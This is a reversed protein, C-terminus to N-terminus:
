LRPVKHLKWREYFDGVVATVLDREIELVKGLKVEAGGEVVVVDLPGERGRFWTKKWEKGEKVSFAKETNIRIKAETNARVQVGTMHSRKGIRYWVLVDVIVPQASSSAFRTYVVTSCPQLSQQDMKDLLNVTGALINNINFRSAVFTVGGDSMLSLYEMVLKATVADATTPPPPLSALVEQQLKKTKMNERIQNQIIGFEKLSFIQFVPLHLIHAFPSAPEPQLPPSTPAYQQLGNPAM